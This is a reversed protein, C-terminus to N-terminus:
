SMIKQIAQFDLGARRAAEIIAPLAEVTSSQDIGTTPPQEHGDHLIIADGPQLTRTTARIIPQTRYEWDFGAVFWMVM